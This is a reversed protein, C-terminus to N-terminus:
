KFTIEVHRTLYFWLHKALGICWAGLFGGFLALAYVELREYLKSEKRRM